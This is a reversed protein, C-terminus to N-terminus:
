AQNLFEVASKEDSVLKIAMGSNNITTFLLNLYYRKFVNSDTIAAVRKLGAKVAEPVAVKEFWKRMEPGIIGQERTDTVLKVTRGHDILSQFANKYAEFTPSGHWIIMGLRQEEEYTVTVYKDELLVQNNESVM